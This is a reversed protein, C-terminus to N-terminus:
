QAWALKLAMTATGRLSQLRLGPESKSAERSSLMGAWLMAWGASTTDISCCASSLLGLLPWPLRGSLRVPLRPPLWPPLTFLLRGALAIAERASDRAARDAWCTGLRLSHWAQATSDRQAQGPRACSSHLHLGAFAQVIMSAEPPFCYLDATSGNKCCPNLAYTNLQDAGGGRGGATWFLMIMAAHLHLIRRCLSLQAALLLIAHGHLCLQLCQFLLHYRPSM